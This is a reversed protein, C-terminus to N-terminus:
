EVISFQVRRNKKRGEATKNDAIPDSEGKGSTTIRNADVGQSVLYAKAAEARGESLKQNFKEDGTNDTHGEALVNFGTYDALYKVIIDLEKKGSAVLVAKSSAFLVNEAKFDPRPCGYLEAIGAVTPCKDKEDNIGDGDTDPIPCGNYKAIGAVTPCKDVDDKIGDNDTDPVPCGNYAAVGAVTPCKDLEDNIGDGDTDPVPCGQYKAVGFVTPCKDEPDNIGDKDTDVPAPPAVVAVPAAPVAKVVPEKKEGVSGAFGLSYLFHYNAGQTVPVRYQLESLLFFEPALKFQLGGGLPMFAEFQDSWLSGGLGAKLYPTFFSKDTLLKLHLSADLAHLYAKKGNNSGTRPPYISNGFYYNISYDVNNNIGKIYNIGLAISMEKLDAWDKGGIVSSLSSSRIRQATVFDIAAGSIGITPRKIYSEEAQQAWVVGVLLIGLLFTLLKRM